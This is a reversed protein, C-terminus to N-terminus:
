YCMNWTPHFSHLLALVASEATPTFYTEPCIATGNKLLGFHVHAGSGVMSLKGILDGQSVSQGASVSISNLQTQGDTQVTSFPEFVYVVSYTSNFRVTINVQWNLSVNNQQLSIGEVTGSSVAQFPKLDATPTFDIGNHAFGWPCNADNSFAENIAGIDSSTEYPTTMSIPTTDVASNDSKHGCATFFASLIVIFLTVRVHIMLINGKLTVAQLRNLINLNEM